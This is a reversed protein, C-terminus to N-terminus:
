REQSNYDLFEINRIPGQKKFSSKSKSISPQKQRKTISRIIAIDQNRTIEDKELDREREAIAETPSLASISKKYSGGAILSKKSGDELAQSLKNYSPM